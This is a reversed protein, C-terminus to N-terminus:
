TLAEGMMIKRAQELTEVLGMAEAREDPPQPTSTAADITYALVSLARARSHEAALHLTEAQTLLGARRLAM